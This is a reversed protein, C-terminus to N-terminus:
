LMSVGSLLRNIGSKNDLPDSYVKTNKSSKYIMIIILVILLFIYFM